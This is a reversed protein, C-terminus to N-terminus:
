AGDSTIRAFGRGSPTRAARARQWKHRHSPGLPQSCSRRQGSAPGDGQRQPRGPAHNRNRSPQVSPRAATATEAPARENSSKLLEIFRWTTTSLQKGRRHIIGLPRVLEDTDLPVAVLTGAAVERLVTPEPLLGLGADIEIARKITEINDFEMVVQVEVRHLHLVRDIERRITLDSDFGILKQGHLQKIASLQRRRALEHAPACVLVMPEERWPIATVTRSSKPYSVLGLDALDQEISEHVRHPHLYELRM